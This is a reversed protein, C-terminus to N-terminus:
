HLSPYKEEMYLFASLHPDNLLQKGTAQFAKPNKTVFCRLMGPQQQPNMLHVHLLTRYTEQACEWAPDILRANEGITQQLIPNLFPFHSCALLVQDIRQKQLQLLYSRAISATMEHEMLGFEVLLVFLPCAIPFLLAKPIRMSIEKQFYGSTITARTGLIAITETESLSAIGQESISIVPISFSSRIEKHAVIWATNCAILLMKPRYRQVIALSKKVCQLITNPSKEGYPLHATDAFYLLNERPLLERLARVVSLGGVGSDFIAIPLENDPIQKEVHM